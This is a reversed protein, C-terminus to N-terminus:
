SVYNRISSAGGGIPSTAETFTRVQDALLRLSPVSPDAGFEMQVRNDTWPLSGVTGYPHFIKIANVLSAAKVADAGYYNQISHYLFHELCRDYNFNVLVLSSLRDALGELRCNESLKKWFATFWTNEIAVFNVGERSNRSMASRREADLISKVISLKGCLEVEANGQHNDILSDISTALTLASGIWKGTQIHQDSNNNVSLLAQMITNDGSILSWREVRFNLLSAIKKKLEAGTPLGAEKSAGAGLVIVTKERPM